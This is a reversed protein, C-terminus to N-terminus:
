SSTAALAIVPVYCAGQSINNLGRADFSSIAKGVAREAVFVDQSGLVYAIPRLELRFADWTEPGAWCLRSPEVYRQAVAIAGPLSRRVLTQIAEIQERSRRRLVFVASGQCGSALKVVWATPEDPLVGDRLIRLQPTELIPEEACYFRIMDEVFALLAKNGLLGTGPANLLPLKRQRFGNDFLATRAAESDVDFNAVATPPRGGSQPQWLQLVQTGTRVDVGIAELIRRRRVHEALWLGAADPADAECGFLAVMGDANPLAHRKIWQNLAISLDSEHLSSRVMELGVARAYAEVVFYGDATGGVCGINDELVTWRGRPDRALDPGYVFCIREREHSGWYQRLTELETGESALIAAFLEPTLSTNGKLFSQEGLVVDAFFLQLARARQATGRQIVAEYEAADIAWPVPLIRTDDGLPRDRLQAVVSPPPRLPDWPARRGLATYSPRLRGRDDFVEDYGENM